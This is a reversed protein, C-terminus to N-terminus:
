STSVSGFDMLVCSQKCKEGRMVGEYAYGAIGDRGGGTWVGKKGLIYDRAFATLEEVTIPSM